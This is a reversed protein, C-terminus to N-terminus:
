RSETQAREVERDGQEVFSVEGDFRIRCFNFIQVFYLNKKWTEFLEGHDQNEEAITSHSQNLLRIEAMKRAREEELLKARFRAIELRKKVSSIELQKERSARKPQLLRNLYTNPHAQRQQVETGNMIRERLKQVSESQQKLAQMKNRLSSLKSVTYSDRIETLNVTQEVYRELQKPKLERHCFAPAFYGGNMHFVLSNSKLTTSLDNPLKANLYILGSFSISWAFVSTDTEANHHGTKRWLRM